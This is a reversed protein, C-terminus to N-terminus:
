RRVDLGDIQEVTRVTEITAPTETQLHRGGREGARGEGGRLPGAAGLAEPARVGEPVHGAAFRLRTRARANEGHTDRALVELGAQRGVVVTEGVGGDQGL